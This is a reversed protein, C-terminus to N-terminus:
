MCLVEKRMRKVEATFPDNHTGPKQMGSTGDAQKRKRNASLAGLVRRTRRIEAREFDILLVQRTDANWLINRPMLDKHLVGLQHVARTCM